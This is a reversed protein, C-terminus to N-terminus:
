KVADGVSRRRLYFVVFVLLVAIVVLLVVIVVDVWSLSLVQSVTPSASPSTSLQSGSPAVTQASAGIKLTQTISWNSKEGEFVEGSFPGPVIVHHIYGILAQVQFDVQSDPPFTARFHDSNVTLGEEPYYNGQYSVVYNDGVKEGVAYGNIPIYLEHWETEFHGKWRINYQLSLTYSMSNNEIEYPTFPTYKIKVEITRAEVHQSPTTVTQGTYPNVSSTPQTEYSSDTLNVTFEPVSPKTTASCFPLILLSPLLLMLLTLLAITRLM